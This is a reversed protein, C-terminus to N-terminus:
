PRGLALYWILVVGGTFVAGLDLLLRLREPGSGRRAPFSILGCFAVVYFGLYAADSWTPYAVRHMVNEIWFQLLDGLLYLLMALSLLRWARCTRYGLDVRRSVRWALVVAAGNLPVFALDGIFAQHARGGWRFMQWMGYAVLVLVAVTVMGGGVQQVGQRVAGVARGFCGSVRGGPHARRVPPSLEPYGSAEMALVLRAPDRLWETFAAASMPRGLYFGQGIDCGLAQLESSIAASEVGEGVVKVGLEHALDITTRVISRFSRSSVIPRVISSDLKLENIPWGGLSELSAFGTGFDDLSFQIGSEALQAFFRASVASTGTEESVELAIMQGPVQEQELLRSVAAPFDLDAVCGPGINVSVPVLWGAAAWAKHQVLAQRLMELSFETMLGLEEALSVFSSPPLIGLEPHEWRALLEAAVLQGTSLEVEPQFYGILQGEQLARPFEARLRAAVDDAESAM